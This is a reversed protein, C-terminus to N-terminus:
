QGVAGNFATLMEEQAEADGTSTKLTLKEPEIEMMVSYNRDDATLTVRSLSRRELSSCISRM